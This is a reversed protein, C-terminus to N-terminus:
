NCVRCRGSGCTCGDPAPTVAHVRVDPPLMRALRGILGPHLEVGAPLDVHCVQADAHVGADTRGAVTLAVPARLVTSLAQELDGQM